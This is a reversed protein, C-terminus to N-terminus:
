SAARFNIVEAMEDPSFFAEALSATDSLGASSYATVAHNQRIVLTKKCFAEIHWSSCLAEGRCIPRKKTQTRGEEALSLHLAM